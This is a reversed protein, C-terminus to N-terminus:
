SLVLSCLTLSAVGLSESKRRSVWGLMFCVFSCSWRWQAWVKLTPYGRVGFSGTIERNETADIQVRVRCQSKRLICSSFTGCVRQSHVKAIRVPPDANRLLEATEVYIPALNKCHGCWQV